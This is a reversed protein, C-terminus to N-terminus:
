KKNDDVHAIACVLDWVGTAGHISAATWNKRKLNYIMGLGHLAFLSGHVFAALNNLEKYTNDPKNKKM